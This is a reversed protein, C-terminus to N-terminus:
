RPRVITSVHGFRREEASSAPRGRACEARAVARRQGAGTGVARREVGGAEGVVARQELAARDVARVVVRGPGAALGPRDEAEAAAAVARSASRAARQNRSRRGASPIGGQSKEASWGFSADAAAIAADARNSRPQSSSACRRSAARSGHRLRPRCRRCGGASRMGGSASRRCQSRSLRPRNRGARRAAARKPQVM